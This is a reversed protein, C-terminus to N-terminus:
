DDALAEVWNGSIAPRAPHARIADDRLQREIELATATTPVLHERELWADVTAWESRAVV